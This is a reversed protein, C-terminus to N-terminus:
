VTGSGVADGAVATSGVVDGGGADGGGVADGGIAGTVDDRVVGVWDGGTARCWRWM